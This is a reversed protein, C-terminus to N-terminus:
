GLDSVTGYKYAKEYGLQRCAVDAAVQDFGSAACVAEWRYGVRLFPGIYYRVYHELRGAPGSYFSDKM